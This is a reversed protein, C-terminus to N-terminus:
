LGEPLDVHMVRKELDIALVVSELAPILVENQRDQGGTKVVYVDNSGTPLIATIRGLYHEDKTFVSLGILDSWYYTGEELEPLSNKDILLTSGVLAEASHRDDVDEFALLIGKSHSKVWKVHFNRQWGRASQVRIPKGPEFSSLSEAYSHVRLNGKIGHVGVIKGIAIFQKDTVL